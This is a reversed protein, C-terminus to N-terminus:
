SGEVILNFKFRRNSIANIMDAAKLLYIYGLQVCDSSRGIKRINKFDKKYTCIIKRKKNEDNRVYRSRLVVKNDEFM